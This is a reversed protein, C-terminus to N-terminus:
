GQLLAWAGTPHAHGCCEGSVAAGLTRLAPQDSRADFATLVDRYAILREFTRTRERLDAFDPYSVGPPQFGTEPTTGVVSLVDGPQPVGLPRLLLGDAMSFIATNAGVGIAISLTAILAFGPNKILMRAGHRLDQWIMSLM